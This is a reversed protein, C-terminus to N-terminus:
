NRDYVHNFDGKNLTNLEMMTKKFCEDCISHSVGEVGKGDKTGMNKNCYSCVIKM